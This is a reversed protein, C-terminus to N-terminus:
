KTTDRDDRGAKARNDGSDAQQDLAAEEFFRALDAASSFFRPEFDQIERVSARLGQTGASANWVSVLFIRAATMADGPGGSM